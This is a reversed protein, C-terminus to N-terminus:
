FAYDIAVVPTFKDQLGKKTISFLGNVTVLLNGFPNIKFGASGLLTNLDGPTATLQPLTTTVIVPPVNPNFVNNATNAVFTTPVVEIVQTNRFTRGIVDGAFTVHSGLAVDFGGTYNIEDPIGESGAPQNNHRHIAWTYGANLHPSFIGFHGSAIVFARIQFVGTGLLDQERGTPFRADTALAVGANPNDTLRFKMRVLVDGIGSADGSQRCDREVDPTVTACAPDALAGTRFQHVTKFLPDNGTALRNIVLDSQPELSVHVLPVAFGLDFRNTVGYTGVLATIDSDIKIRLQAQIADGEFFFHLHNGNNDIDQHQFVLKLDGNSLDINNIQDFTFHSYNIGLNFRGRGVTDVREAYIPGFSASGRTFTGLAPDYTYTFGGSSSPLPFSSLQSALSVNLQNFATFQGLGSVFHAEHSFQAAPALTIGQALFNTLLDRLDEAGAALPCLAAVLVLVVRRPIM